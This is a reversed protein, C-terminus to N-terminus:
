TQELPGYGLIYLESNEVMFAPDAENEDSIEWEKEVGSRSITRLKVDMTDDYEKLIEILDSLRM